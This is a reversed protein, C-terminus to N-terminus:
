VNRDEMKKIVSKFQDLIQVMQNQVRDSRRLSVKYRDIRSQLTDIVKDTDYVNLLFGDVLITKHPNCRTALYGVDGTAFGAKKLERSNIIM